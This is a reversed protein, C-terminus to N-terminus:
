HTEWRFWRVGIFTFVVVYGLCALLAYTDNDVWSTTGIVDSFLTMLAGVPTWQSVSKVVDGLVGTGGLIGLLVLVIFLIRGIANIAAASTVLGVLAQGIALFVAAGVAAVAIVLLYQLFTPTLGHLIVGVIVVIISAILNTIVQVAIRSTMITWTPTPTVRLRQLVGAERDHALTLSYGLLCSTLLGLTLALGIVLSPDGLRNGAKAFSTVVLIAVPLVLSLVTAVRSRLLM